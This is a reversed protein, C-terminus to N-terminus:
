FSYESLAALAAQVDSKMSEFCYKDRISKSLELLNSLIQSEFLRLNHDFLRIAEIFAYWDGYPIPNALGPYQNAHHYLERGGLGDYGIVACGCAMAEAVPLGFGEPFGFSLFILSEKMLEIVKDHPLNIIPTVSWSPVLESNNLLDIVVSSDEKNKRPMFVIQRKKAVNLSSFQLDLANTILRVRDPPLSFSRTLFRRDHHSVCWVQKISPFSYLSSIASPKYFQSAKM